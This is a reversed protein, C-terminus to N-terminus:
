SYCHSMWYESQLSVTGCLFLSFVWCVKIRSDTLSSDYQATSFHRLKPLSTLGHRGYPHVRMDNSRTRQHGTVTKLVSSGCFQLCAEDAALWAGQHHDDLLRNSTGFLLQSDSYLCNTPVTCSQPLVCVCQKRDSM